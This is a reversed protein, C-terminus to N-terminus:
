VMSRLASREVVGPRRCSACVYALTFGGREVRGGVSRRNDNCVALNNEHLISGSCLSCTFRYCGDGQALCRAAMLIASRSQTPTLIMSASFSCYTLLIRAVELTLIALTSEEDACKCTIVIGCREVAAHRSDRTGGASRASPSGEGVATVWLEAGGQEDGKNWYLYGNLVQM